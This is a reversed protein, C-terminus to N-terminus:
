GRECYAELQVSILDLFIAEHGTAIVHEVPVIADHPLLLATEIVLHTTKGRDSDVVLRKLTGAWGDRCSVRAGVSTQVM